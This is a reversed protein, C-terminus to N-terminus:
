PARDNLFWELGFTSRVEITACTTDTLFIKVSVHGGVEIATRTLLAMRASNPEPLRSVYIYGHQARGGIIDEKAFALLGSSQATREGEFSLVM